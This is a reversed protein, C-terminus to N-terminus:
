ARSRLHRPLLVLVAAATTLHLLATLAVVGATAQPYPTSELLLSLPGGLSLVAGVAVLFGFTRRPRRARHQLVALLFAAAVVGALTAAVVSPVALPDYGDPIDLVGASGIALALNVPLAIAATIVASSAIGRASRPSESRPDQTAQGRAAISSM